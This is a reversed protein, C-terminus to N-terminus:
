KLIKKLTEIYNKETNNEILFYANDNLSSIRSTLLKKMKNNLNDINNFSYYHKSPIFYNNYNNDEIMFIETHTLISMYLYNIDIDHDFIIVMNSINCIENYRNLNVYKIWVVNLNEIIELEKKSNKYGVYIFELKPYENILTQVEKIHKLYKDLIIVKKKTKSIKYDEYISKNKKLNLSPLIKPIFITNKNNKLSSISTIIKLNDINPLKKIQRDEMYNTMLFVKKNKIIKLIKDNIDTILVIKYKCIDTTYKINARDLYTLVEALNDKNEIYVLM